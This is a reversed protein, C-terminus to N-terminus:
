LNILLEHTIYLLFSIAVWELVRVQFIGHVSSGPLSCDMPDCLTPCSQAVESWERWESWVKDSSFSIAVWELTRAQLIGRVSSGPPGHDMPDCLTPCSQLSQACIYYFLLSDLFSQWILKDAQGEIDQYPCTVLLIALELSTVPWKDLNWKGAGWDTKGICSDKDKVRFLTHPLWFTSHTPDSTLNNMYYKNIM